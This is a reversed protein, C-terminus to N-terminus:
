FGFHISLHKKFHKAAASTVELASKVPDFGEVM